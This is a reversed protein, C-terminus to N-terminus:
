PVFHDVKGDIQELRKKVEDMDKKTALTELFPIIEDHVVKVMGGIVLKDIEKKEEDTLM